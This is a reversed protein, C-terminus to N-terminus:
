KKQPQDKKPLAPAPPPPALANAPTSQASQPPVPIIRVKDTQPDYQLTHTPPLKETERGQLIAQNFVQITNNLNEQAIVVKQYANSIRLATIESVVNPVPPTAPPAAPQSPQQACVVLTFSLLVLALMILNKM